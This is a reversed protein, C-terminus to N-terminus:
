GLIADLRRQVHQPLDAIGLGFDRQLTEEFEERTMAEDEHAPEDIVGVVEALEAESMPRYRRRLATAREKYNLHHRGIARHMVGALRLHKCNTRDLLVEPREWGTQESITLMVEEASPYGDFIFFPVVLPVYGEREATDFVASWERYLPDDRGLSFGVEFGGQFARHRYRRLLTAQDQTGFPQELDAIAALSWEIADECDLCQEPSLGFFV